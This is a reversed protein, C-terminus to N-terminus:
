LAAKATAAFACLREETDRFFLFAPIAMRDVGWSQAQQIAEAPNDRDLGPHAVTVEIEAPNRGHETATTRAIDILDTLERTLETTSQEPSAGLNRPVLFMGDGIRGARQAAARSHGGIHIPVTGNAPKPNSSAREFSVFEGSYTVDDEAWVRRMVGIYEETRAARREWPVDLADFEERLWGIGAGLMVRGGSLSDVTAIEKAYLLPHREPVLSIGTALRLESTVAAVYALWTLPDPIPLDGTAPMKGSESYPYQSKYDEPFLVHEVTWLSEFGAAEASRGLLAAGEGTVFPGANAFVVGFKM